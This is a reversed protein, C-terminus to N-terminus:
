SMQARVPLKKLHHALQGPDEAAARLGCRSQHACLVPLHCPVKCPANNVNYTYYSNYVNNKLKYSCCDTIIYVNRVDIVKNCDQDLPWRM